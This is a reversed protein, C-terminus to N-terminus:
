YCDIGEPVGLGEAVALDRQNADFTWFTAAGLQLATAVHLIDAFRNGGTETHKASLMEALSFVGAWDAAVVQLVGSSLDSQLDRLMARGEKEGFGLRPNQRHLRVQLRVSQRFEFLVLPSVPLPDSISKRLADARSSNVQERYLACFFSTEAFPRTM